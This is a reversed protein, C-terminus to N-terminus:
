WNLKGDRVQVRGETIVVRFRERDQLVDIDELPDGDVVIVDAKKGPEITGVDALRCAEAATKTASIIAEMPTMGGHAVYEHLEWAIPSIDFRMFDTGAAIKVGAERAMRISKRSAEITELNKRAAEEDPLGKEADKLYGYVPHTRVGSTPVLIIGKEAMMALDDPQECLFTGYEITDVGAQVAATLGGGGHAHASVPVDRWHSEEVAAEIEELTMEQVKPADHGQGGGGTPGLLKIVDVNEALCLRTQKRVAWVGDAGSWEPRVLTPPVMAYIHGATPFVCGAAIIRPAPFYGREVATRLAVLHRGRMDPATPIAGHLIRVTTIGHQLLSRLDKVGKLVPLISASLLNDYYKDFGPEFGREGLPHSHSEILGPMVTMGSADIVEAGSPVEVEGRKGVSKIKKGEIVVASDEVPEAGTGDVLKGGLVAKLEFM